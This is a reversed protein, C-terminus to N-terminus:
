RHCALNLEVLRQFADNAHRHGQEMAKFADMYAFVDTDSGNNNGALPEGAALLTTTLVLIVEELQHAKGPQFKFGAPIFKSTPRQKRSQDM